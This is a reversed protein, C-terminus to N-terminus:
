FVGPGLILGVFIYFPAFFLKTKEALIASVAIAAFCVAIQFYLDM